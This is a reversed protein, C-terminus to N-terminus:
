EDPHILILNGGVFESVRRLRDPAKGTVPPVNRAIAVAVAGIERESVAVGFMPLPFHGFCDSDRATIHLRNSGAFQVIILAHFGAEALGEILGQSRLGATLAPRAM